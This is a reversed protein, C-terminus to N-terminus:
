ESTGASVRGVMKGSVVILLLINPVLRASVKQWRIGRGAGLMPQATGVIRTLIGAVNELSHRVTYDLQGGARKSVVLYGANIGVNEVESWPLEQGKMSLGSQTVACPGFELREGRGLADLARPFLSTTIQTQLQRGLEDINCYRQNIATKRGDSLVLTYERMKATQVGNVFQDRLDQYIEKIQDWAVGGSIARDDGVFGNSTLVLTHGGRGLFKKTNFAQIPIGMGWDRITKGCVLTEPSLQPLDPRSIGALISPTIVPFFFSMLGWIGGPMGLEKAYRSALIPTVCWMWLMIVVLMLADMGTMGPPSGPQQPVVADAVPVLVFLVPVAIISLVLQKRKSM